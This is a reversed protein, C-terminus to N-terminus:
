GSMGKTWGIGREKAETKVRVLAEKKERERKREPRQQHWRGGTERARGRGPGGSKEEGSIYLRWTRRGVTSEREDGESRGCDGGSISKRGRYYKRKRRGELLGTCHLWVLSVLFSHTLSRHPLPAQNPPHSNRTFFKIIELRTILYIESINRSHTIFEVRLRYRHLHTQSSALCSGFM